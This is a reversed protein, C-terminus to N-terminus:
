HPAEDGRDRWADLRQFFLDLWNRWVPYAFTEGYSPPPPQNAAPRVRREHVLEGLRNQFDVFTAKQGRPLDKLVPKFYDRFALRRAAARRAARNKVHAFNRELQKALADFSKVLLLGLDYACEQGGGPEKIKCRGMISEVSNAPPPEVSFGGLREMIFSIGEDLGWHEVTEETCASKCGRTRVHKDFLAHGTEHHM